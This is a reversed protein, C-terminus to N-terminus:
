HVLLGIPGSPPPLDDSGSGGFMHTEAGRANLNDNGAGGRLISFGGDELSGSAGILVDSYDTGIATNANTVHIDADTLATSFAYGVWSLFGSVNSVAPLGLIKGTSLDIYVGSSTGSADVVDQDFAIESDGLDIWTDAGRTEDLNGFLKVTESRILKDDEVTALGSIDVEIHPSDPSDASSETYGSLSEQDEEQVSRYDFKITNFQVAVDKDKLVGSLRSKEIISRSGFKGRADFSLSLSSLPATWSGPLYILTNDGIGGDLVDPGGTGYVTDNGRGANIVDGLQFGLMPNLAGLIREWYTPDTAYAGNGGEAVKYGIVDNGKSGVAYHASKQFNIATQVGTTGLTDSGITPAPEGGQLGYLEAFKNNAEVQLASVDAYNSLQRIYANTEDPNLLSIAWPRAYEELAAAAAVAEYSGAERATLNDYNGVSSPGELGDIILNRYFDSGGLNPFLITGAWGGAHAGDGTEAIQNPKYQFVVSAASGADYLGAQTITPQTAGLIADKGLWQGIFNQAISNSAKNMQDQSPPERYRLRYQNITYERILDAFAGEGSNVFRAGKLWLWTQPDVPVDTRPADVGLTTTTLYSYLLDYVDRWVGSDNQDLAIADDYATNLDAIQSTSLIDVTDTM